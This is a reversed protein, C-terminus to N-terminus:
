RGRRDLWQRINDVTDQYFRRYVNHSVYGIHPTALVNPLTRYPHNPPLPEQDFVDIAAGAIKGGSLAAILDAEMV